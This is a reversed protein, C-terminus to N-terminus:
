EIVRKALSGCYICNIGRAITKRIITQGCKVCKYKIGKPKDNENRYEM